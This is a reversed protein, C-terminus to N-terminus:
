QSGKDEELGGVITIRKDEELGGVITIRKDEELGGVITIRQRGGVRWSNHDGKAQSAVELGGVISHDKSVHSGKRVYM